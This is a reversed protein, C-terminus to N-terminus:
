NYYNARSTYYKCVKVIKQLNDIRTSIIESSKISQNLVYGPTVLDEGNAAMKLKLKLFEDSEEDPVIRMVHHEVTAIYQHLKIRAAKATTPTVGDSM